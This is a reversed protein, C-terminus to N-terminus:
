DCQGTANPEARRQCLKVRVWSRPSSDLRLKLLLVERRGGPHPPPMVDFDNSFQYLDADKTANHNERDM